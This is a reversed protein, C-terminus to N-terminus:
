VAFRAAIASPPPLIVSPVNLGRVLCEWVVVITLGFIVPVALGTGRSRPLRALLTNAWIGLAWAALAALVWAMIGNGHTEPHHAAGARYTGGASRGFRRGHDARELDPHNPWLLQGGAVAGWARGCGRHATRGCHGGGLQRGHCNEDLHVSLAYVLAPAPALLNAGRQCEM